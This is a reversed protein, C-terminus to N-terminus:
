ANGKMPMVVYFSNEKDSERILLPSAEGSFGLYLMEGSYSDVGDLLYHYNFVVSLDSGEITAEFSAKYAGLQGKSEIICEGQKSSLMVFVGQLKDSFVSAQKIHRVLDRKKAVMRATFKRPIIPQYEPFSGETLRSYLVIDGYVVKIEGQGISFDITKQESSDLIRIIEESSRIPLLISQKVGKASLSHLKIKEESLRFSDTAALTATDKEFTIFVSALEPKVSSKSVSVLSRALVAKLDLAGFSVRYQEALDPFPPYDEPSYGKFLTEQPGSSVFLDTGQTELTIKEDKTFTNLFSILPRAPVVVSGRDQVTARALAKIGVELNTAVIKLAGDEASIFFSGLLPLTSDKGTARETHALARKINESIVVCKM